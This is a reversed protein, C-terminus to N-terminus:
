YKAKDDIIKIIETASDSISSDTMAKIYDTQNQYLLDIKDKLISETIEEEYLLMSFNQRKFSQANLIQDGRSSDKPLPILLNPKKLALLEFLFNAGARSVCLDAMALIHPLEQSVFEFQKYGKYGILNQDVNDKGCIHAVQYKLLLDPLIARIMKNIRVSGLSGGMVLITPKNDTFGCLKLGEEKSGSLLEPRIPNGTLIGKGEPLHNLTEPFTTCITSAFPLAIRNALGPTLDSEHLIVPIRNLWAGIIVPVSVFGGKSFIINPRLKKLLKYSQVIGKIVRFPDTFNQKSFYRRFKGTAIPYYPLHEATILEREIGDNSGIYLVKWGKSQLKPFLALNPMVHGATGGGTLVIKKLM